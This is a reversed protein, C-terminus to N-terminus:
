VDASLQNILALIKIKTQELNHRTRIAQQVTREHKLQLSLQDLLKGGGAAVKEVEIEELRLEHQRIDNLVDIENLSHQYHNWLEIAQGELRKLLARAKARDSLSNSTARSVAHRNYLLASLEWKLALELSTEETYSLDVGGNEGATFSDNDREHSLNLSLSPYGSAKEKKIRAQSIEAQMFQALVDASDQIQTLMDEQSVPMRSDDIATFAMATVNPEVGFYRVYDGVAKALRSKQQVLKSQQDLTSKQAAIWKADSHGGNIKNERALELMQQSFDYARALSELVASEKLVAYYAVAGRSLETQQAALLQANARKLGADAEAIQAMDSFGNFLGQAVELSGSKVTKTAGNNIGLGRVTDNDLKTRGISSKLTVKPYLRTQASDVSSKASHLSQQAAEITASNGLLGHLAENLTQAQGQASCLFSAAVITACVSKQPSFNM